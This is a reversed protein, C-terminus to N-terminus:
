QAANPTAANDAPAAQANCTAAAQTVEPSSTNLAMRQQVTLKDLQGVVCSCYTNAAAAALGHQEASPVCSDHISKDFSANFSNDFAPQGCSALGILVAAGGCLWSIRAMGTAFDPYNM